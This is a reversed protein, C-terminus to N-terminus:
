EPHPLLVLPVVSRSSPFGEGDSADVEFAVLHGVEPASVAFPVSFSFAAAAMAGGGTTHGSALVRGDRALLKWVVNSEFTRSCGRVNLPSSTRLGATPMVVAVFSSDALVPDIPDCPGSPVSDICAVGAVLSMVFLTATKVFTRV